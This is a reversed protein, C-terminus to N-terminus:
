RKVPTAKLAAKGDKVYVQFRVTRCNYKQILQERNKRLKRAFREYTLGDPPEGCRERTAVFDRYVEQFHVEDADVPAPPVVPAKAAPETRAPAAQEEDQAASARLLEEPISAVRTADPSADASFEPPYENTSESRPPASAFPQPAPSDFGTHGLHGAQAQEASTPPWSSTSAFPFDADSTPPPPSVESSALPLSASAGGRRNGGLAFGSGPRHASAVAYVEDRREEWLTPLWGSLLFWAVSLILIVLFGLMAMRQYDALAQMFPKLSVVGIVEYPTAAVAQRTAVWLPAGAESRFSTLFPLSFPGWSGLSGWGVVGTTGPRARKEIQALPEKEGATGAVKGSRILALASLGSEKVASELLGEAAIPAGVVMFGLPRAEAKDIVTVPYSFFIHTAGFAEQWVGESGAMTLADIDLAARDTGPPGTGRAYVSGQENGLGVILVSRLPDPVNEQIAERVASLKDPSPLEARSRLSQLAALAPGAVAKSAARQLERRRQDIKVELALPAMRAEAVASELARASLSPSLRYLHGIWLGLVIIAFLAFKIQVM